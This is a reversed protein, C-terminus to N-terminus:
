AFPDVQDAMPKASPSAAEAQTEGPEVIHKFKPWEESERLTKKLWDHLNDWDAKTPEDTSFFMLRNRLPPLANVEESSLPFINTVKDYLNGNTQNPVHSVICKGGFGMFRKLEVKEMQEDSLQEGKLNDLLQLLQSRKGNYNSMIYIMENKMVYPQEGKEEYGPFIHNTKVLEMFFIIKRSAKYKENRPKQTGIEVIGQFRFDHTGKPALVKPRASSKPPKM